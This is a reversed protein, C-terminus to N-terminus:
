VVGKRGWLSPMICCSDITQSIITFGDVFDRKALFRQIDDVLTADLHHEDRHELMYAFVPVLKAGYDGNYNGIELLSRLQRSFFGEHVLLPNM